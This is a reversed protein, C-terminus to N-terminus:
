RVNVPVVVSRGLLCGVYAFEAGATELAAATGESVVYYVGNLRIALGDYQSAYQRAETASDFERANIQITKM